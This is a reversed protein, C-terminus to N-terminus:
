IDAFKVNETILYSKNGGANSAFCIEPFGDNNIHGIAVGAGNYFYLYDLISLTDRATNTNIFGINTESPPLSTFLAPARHSCAALLLNSLFLFFVLRESKNVDPM